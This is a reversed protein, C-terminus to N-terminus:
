APPKKKEKQEGKSKDDRVSKLAFGFGNAYKM